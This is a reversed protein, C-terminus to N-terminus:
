FATKLNLVVSIFSNTEKLVELPNIKLSLFILFLLDVLQQQKEKPNIKHFYSIDIAVLTNENSIHKHYVATLIREAFHSPLLSSHHGMVAM